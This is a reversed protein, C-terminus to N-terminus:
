ILTVGPERPVDGAALPRLPPAIALMELLTPLGLLLVYPFADYLARLEDVYGYPVSMAVLPLLTLLLGARLIAPKERWGWLALALMLFMVVFAYVASGVYKQLIVAQHDAFHTELDTGLNHAIHLGILRRIVFYAAGLVIVSAGAEVKKGRAYCAYAWVPLALVATEKNISALVFLGAFLWLRGALICYAMATAFFVTAPDYVYDFYRFWLPIALLYVLAAISSEAPRADFAIAYARRAFLACGFFMLIALVEFVFEQYDFNLYELSFGTHGMVLWFSDQVTQPTAADIRGVLWPVLIRGAFPRFATAAVMQHLSARASSELGGTGHAFAHTVLLAALFYIGFWAWRFSRKNAIARNPPM